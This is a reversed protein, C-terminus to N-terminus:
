KLLDLSKPGLERLSRTDRFCVFGNGITTGEAYVSPGEVFLGALLQRLQNLWGLDDGACTVMHSHLAQGWDRARAVADPSPEGKEWLKGLCDEGASAAANLEVNINRLRPANKLLETVTTGVACLHDPAEDLVGRHLVASQALPDYAEDFKTVADRYRNLRKGISTGADYSAPGAKFLSGVLERLQV